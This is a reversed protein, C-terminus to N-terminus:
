RNKSGETLSRLVLTASLLSGVGESDYPPRIFHVQSDKLGLKAFQKLTLDKLTARYKEPSNSFDSMVIEEGLVLLAPSPTSLSFSDNEFSEGLSELYDAIEPFAPLVPLPLTELSACIKNDKMYLALSEAGADIQTQADLSKQVVYDYYRVEGAHNELTDTGGYRRPDRQAEFAKLGLPSGSKAADKKAFYFLSEELSESTTHENKKLELGWLLDAKALAFGCSNQAPLLAFLQSVDKVQLFGTPLVLTKKGSLKELLAKMEAPASSGLVLSGDPLVIMNSGRNGLTEFELDQKVVPLQSLEWDYAAKLSQRLFQPEELPLNGKFISKSDLPWKKSSPAPARNGPNLDLFGRMWTKDEKKRWYSEGLDRVWPFQLYSYNRYKVQEAFVKDKKALEKKFNELERPVQSKNRDGLPEFSEPVFISLQIKKGRKNQDVIMRGLDLLSNANSKSFSLILENPPALASEFRVPHSEAPTAVQAWLSLSLSLGAVAISKM